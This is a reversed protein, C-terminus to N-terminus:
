REVAGLGLRTTLGIRSSEGIRGPPDGGLVLAEGVAQLPQGLPTPSPPGAVIADIGIRAQVGVRMRPEIVCLHYTTHAPKERDLIARVDDRKKNSYSQGRYLQVTFQHAVDEFLPVGFEEQTILRSADLVATTGVVAGQAEAPVLTTTVGLISTGAELAPSTEDGALSWWSAHLIPEEIRVDAEAFRRVAMQLGEVTGRRAYMAFAEAIARRTRADDWDERVDLALWGGLWSLFDAPTAAPDFLVALDAIRGEVENFLSEFLSLFRALFRRSPVNERYIAPLFQLYTEHDFDLRMQSLAPSSFGESSFEAGVWVHDLPTGPIMCEAIDLPMRIWTECCTRQGNREPLCDTLDVPVLEAMRSRIPASRVALKEPVGAEVEIVNGPNHHSGPSAQVSAGSWPPDIALPNGPSPNSSASTYVFLQFHAGPELHGIGAKLRHWQEPRLSPNTFPGGWLFGNKAYGGRVALRLPALGSGSHVLLGGHADLALAAVPGGYGLAEGVLTGARTFRRVHRAGNDGVYLADQGVALGMAQQLSKDDIARLYQGDTDFVFVTHVSADLIYIETDQGTTGAAVDSPQRLSLKHQQVAQQVEQWFAAM